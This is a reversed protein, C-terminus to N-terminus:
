SLKRTYKRKTGEVLIVKKVRGDDFREIVEKYDLPDKDELWSILPTIVVEDKYKSRATAEDQAKVIAVEENRTNTVIFFPSLGQTAFDGVYAKALDIAREEDEESLHGKTVDIGNDALHRALKTFFFQDEDMKIHKM